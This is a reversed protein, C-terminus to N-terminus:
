PQLNSTLKALGNENWSKPRIQADSLASLSFFIKHYRTYINLQTKNPLSIGLHGQCAHWKLTCRSPAMALFLFAWPKQPSPKNGDRFKLTHNLTETTTQVCVLM